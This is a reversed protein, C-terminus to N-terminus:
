NEKAGRSELFAITGENDAYSPRRIWKLLPMGKIRTNLDAGHDVLTRTIDLRADGMCAAVVIMPEGSPLLANANLGARFLKELDYASGRTIASYLMEPDITVSANRMVEKLHVPEQIQAKKEGVASEYISKIALILFTAYLLFLVVSFHSFIKAFNRYSESDFSDQYIVNMIDWILINLLQLGFGITLYIAGPKPAKSYAFVALILYVVPYLWNEILRLTEM